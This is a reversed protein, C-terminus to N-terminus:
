NWEFDNIEQMDDGDFAWTGGGKRTGARLPSGIAAMLRAHLAARSQQLDLDDLRKLRRRMSLGMADALKAGVQRGLLEARDCTALSSRTASIVPIGLAQIDAVRAKDREVQGEENHYGSDYEVDLAGPWYLDPMLTERSVIGRKEPPVSIVPNLLPAPYGRGGRRPPLMQELAIVAERPSYANDLVWGAAAKAPKAGTMGASQEIYSRLSGADLVPDVLFDCASTGDCMVSHAFRGCLEFGLLVQKEFSLSLAKHLYYWEFSPVLIDPSIEMLTGAPFEEPFLSFEFGPVRRRAAPSTVAVQLPNSETVDVVHAIPGLNVALLDETRTACSDPHLRTADTKSALIRGARIAPMVKDLAKGALLIKKDAM